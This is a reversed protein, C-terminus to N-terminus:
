EAAGRLQDDAHAWYADSGVIFVPRRAAAIADGLRQVADPDPDDGLPGAPRDPLEGASPGFVDLPFDVFTPGRHPTAATTIAEHVTAAATAPDTVTTALKTISSVIPVHDLEQLSGSGWRKAPARGGLVVLPAGN